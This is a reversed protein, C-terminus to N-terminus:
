LVFVSNTQFPMIKSLITSLKVETNLFKKKNQRCHAAAQHSIETGLDPISGSGYCHIHQTRAVLGGPFERFVKKKKSKLASGLAYSFEWALPLIPAAAAPRCWLWLLVLNSGCRRGVGSSM